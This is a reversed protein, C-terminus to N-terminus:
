DVNSLTCPHTQHIGWNKFFRRDSGQNAEGAAENGPKKELRMGQHGGGLWGREPSGTVGASPVRDARKEDVKNSKELGPSQAQLGM